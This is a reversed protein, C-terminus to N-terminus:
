LVVQTAGGTTWTGIRALALFFIPIFSFLFFIPEEIFKLHRGTKSKSYVCIEVKPLANKKKTKSKCRCFGGKGARGEPPYQPRFNPTVPLRRPVATLKKGAYTFICIKKKKKKQKEGKGLGWRPSPHFTQNSHWSPSIRDTFLSLIKITFTFASQPSASHGPRYTTNLFCPHAIHIPIYVCVKRSIRRPVYNKLNLLDIIKKKKGPVGCTM